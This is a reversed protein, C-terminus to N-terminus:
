YSPECVGTNRTGVGRGYEQEGAFDDAMLHRWNRRPLSVEANFFLVNNGWPFPKARRNLYEYAPPQVIVGDNEAKEHELHHFHESEVNYV